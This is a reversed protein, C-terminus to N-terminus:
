ARAAERRAKGVLEYYMAASAQERARKVLRTLTAIALPKPMGYHMLVRVEDAVEAVQRLAARRRRGEAARQIALQVRGSENTVVRRRHHALWAEADPVLALSAARTEAQACRPPIV